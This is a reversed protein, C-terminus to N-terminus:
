RYLHIIETAVEDVGIAKGIAYRYLALQGEYKKSLAAEFDPLSKGSMADSKYDYVKVRGGKTKVVLDAQGNIWVPVDGCTIGFTSEFCTRDEDPLYFSFSYETYVEEAEDMVPGLVRDIYDNMKPALYEMFAEPSDDKRFDERNELIALSILQKISKNREDQSHASIVGYREVILQYVRHMVTGFVNGNPRDESIYGAESVSYGTTGKAELGSPTISMVRGERLKEFGGNLNQLKDELANLTVTPHGTVAIDETIVYQTDDSDRSNIWASIDNSSTNLCFAEDSFWVNKVKYSTIAPMFILAHAARTAAVYQLRKREENEESCAQSMIKLDAGFTPFYSPASSSSIAYTATPYYRGMSKFGSCRNKEEFSRDAIIVIQGTLGKSQHANMLRVANENSELPIEHRVEHVLYKEMLGAVESLDGKSKELCSEAMQHLRIRYARVKNVDALIDRPVYWEENRLVHQVIAAADYRNEMFYHRIDNLRDEASKIESDDVVAYDIQQIVQAAAVRNQKNKHNAFYQILLCFNKLVQDGFVSFKGQVNVPIGLLAFADVYSSINTANRTIIMIDSYRIKRLYPQGYTGDPNRNPEEIFYKNNNVLRRVLETVAEVDKEKSYDSKGSADSTEPYYYVGHLAMSNNVKWDTSMPTYDAGMLRSFCTNVWNVVDSNSRFNSDLSVSEALPQKSALEKDMADYVAKEAGTFRYISQKPDGVILLKDEEFDHSGASTGPKESLMCVLEAQLGTTDQFEDVYIKSYKARNADLIASYKKLLLSSRYLIDDNSLVLTEKDIMEQYAKQIKSSVYTAAKIAKQSNEVQTLYTEFNWESEPGSMNKYVNQLSPDLPEVMTSDGYYIKKKKEVITKIASIANSLTRARELEDSIGNRISDIGAVITEGDSNLQKLAGGTKKPHQKKIEDRVDSVPKLWRGCFNLAEKKVDDLSLLPPLIVDERINAMDMFLNLFVEFTYHKINGTSKIAYAWDDDFQAFDAYHDHYWRDFFDKKRKEDEDAELMRADPTIQSEFSNEKLLKLLFAHITSIQMLEITNLAIQANEKESGSLTSISTRLESAVKDRLENAAANTYTIIVFREVPIGEIIQRCIRKSLMTTKGGGAGARVSYNIRGENPTKLALRDRIDSETKTM